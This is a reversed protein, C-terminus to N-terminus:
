KIKKRHKKRYEMWNSAFCRLAFDFPFPFDILRVKVNRGQMILRVSSLPGDWAMRVSVGVGGRRPVVVVAVPQAALARGLFGSRLSSCPRPSPSPALSVRHNPLSIAAAPIAAAAAAM